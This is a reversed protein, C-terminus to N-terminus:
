LNLLKIYKDAIYSWNYTHSNNNFELINCYKMYIDNNYMNLIAKAFEEANGPECLVGYSQGGMVERFGELDSAIIPKVFVFASQPIGSQSM